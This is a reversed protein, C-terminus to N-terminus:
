GWGVELSAIDGWRNPFVNVQVERLDFCFDGTQKRLSVSFPLVDAMTSRRAAAGNARVIGQEESGPHQYYPVTNGSGQKQTAGGVPGSQTEHPGSDPQFAAFRKRTM